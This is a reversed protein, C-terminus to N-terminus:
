IHALCALYIQSRATPHGMAILAQLLLDKLFISTATNCDVVTFYAVWCYNELKMLAELPTCM